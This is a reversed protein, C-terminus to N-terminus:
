HHGYSDDERTYFTPPLKKQIKAANHLFLHKQSAIFAQKSTHYNLVMLADEETLLVHQSEDIYIKQLRFDRQNWISNCLCIHCFNTPLASMEEGNTDLVVLAHESNSLIKEKVTEALFTKENSEIWFSSFQQSLRQFHDDNYQIDFIMGEEAKGMRHHLADDYAFMVTKSVTNDGQYMGEYIIDFIGSLFSDCLDPLHKTITYKLFFVIWNRWAYYTAFTSVDEQKAGMAHAVVSSGLSAVKYGALNCRIGWETDDWYLFNEEPMPGIQEVLSSRVLVSCAAVADSYVVSPISDDDYRNYYNAEVSFDKFNVTIGYQQIVAPDEMHVVKSGVMGVDPHTDLFDVLPPLAQEDVLVDNDLCWLYTYGLSVAKCIGTNFGGSGGLNEQNVLLNVKDGYLERIRTVSNDTSANDVVFIDYDDTKSEIVSQICNVVYECKNYNCIIVATKKM